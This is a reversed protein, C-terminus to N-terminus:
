NQQYAASGDIQACISNIQMSSQTMFSQRYSEDNRLRQMHYRNADVYTPILPSLSADSAGFADALADGHIHRAFGHMLAIAIDKPLKMAVSMRQGLAELMSRTLLKANEEPYPPDLNFSKLWNGACGDRALETMIRSPIGLLKGVIQWLAAVHTKEEATWEIGLCELARPSVMAFGLWTHVMQRQDIPPNVNHHPAKKKMSARVKAHILRVQLTHVYGAGGIQWAGVQLLKLLWLQTESLRRSAAENVLKGSQILTRAINPDTYTHLLAGPGMSVSIWMPSAYLYPTPALDLFSAARLFEEAQTLLAHYSAPAQPISHAGNRMGEILWNKEEPSAKIWDAIVNDALPDGENLEPWENQNIINNMHNFVNFSLM